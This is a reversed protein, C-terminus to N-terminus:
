SHALKGADDFPEEATKPPAAKVKRTAKRPKAPPVARCRIAPVMRGSFSVSTPFLLIDNGTWGETAGGFAAKLVGANTRNLVWAKELGRLTAVPKHDEPKGNGGVDEVTVNDITVELDGDELDSAKLYKSPFLDDINPM